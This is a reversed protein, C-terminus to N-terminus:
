LYYKNCYHNSSYFFCSCLFIMFLSKEVNYKFAYLVPTSTSQKEKERGMKKM